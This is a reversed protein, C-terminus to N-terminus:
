APWCRRRAAGAAGVILMIGLNPEPVTGAMAGAGVRQGEATGFHQNVAALDFAARMARSTEADDIGTWMQKGAQWTGMVIASLFIDTQGLKVQKM